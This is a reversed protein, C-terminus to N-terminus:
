KKIYGGLFAMFDEDIEYRNIFGINMYYVSDYYAGNQNYIRITIPNALADGTLGWSPAVTVPGSGGMDVMGGSSSTAAPTEDSVPTDMGYASGIAADPATRDQATDDPMVDPVVDPGAVDIGIERGESGWGGSGFLKEFYKDSSNKLVSYFGYFREIEDKDTIEGLIDPVGRLKAQESYGIFRVKAIDDASDIGYLGLYRMADEDQNNEYSEFTFFRFLVYGDDKKVAVVADGGAPIYRYVECGTLRKDPGSTIVALKEGIDDDSIAAPFGFNARLDDSLMIYKRDGLIFQDLLPAAMDERAADDSVYHPPQEAGDNSPAKNGYLTNYTLLGGTLAVALVFVPIAKKLTMPKM